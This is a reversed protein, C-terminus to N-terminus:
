GRKGRVQEVASQILRALVRPAMGKTRRKAGQLFKRRRALLMAKEADSFVLPPVVKCVTKGALELAVGNAGVPLSRIFDRVAASQQDLKIRKM